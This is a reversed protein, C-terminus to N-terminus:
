GVRINLVGAVTSATAHSLSRSKDDAPGSIRARGGLVRATWDVGPVQFLAGLDREIDADSRALTRVIDRRSVVGLIRGRDDVVPLSKFGTSRMVKAVDALDTDATVTVPRRSMVADVRDGAARPLM